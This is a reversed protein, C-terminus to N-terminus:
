NQIESQIETQIPELARLKTIIGMKYFDAEILSIEKLIFEGIKYRSYENKVSNDLNNLINSFVSHIIIIGFYGLTFAFLLAVLARFIANEKFM